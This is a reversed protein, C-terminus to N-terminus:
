YLIYGPFFHTAPCFSSKRALVWSCFLNPCRFCAKPPFGPKALGDFVRLYGTFVSLYGTFVRWCGLTL